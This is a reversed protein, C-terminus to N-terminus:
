TRKIVQRRHRCVRSTVGADRARRQLLPHSSGSARIMGRRRQLQPPFATSTCTPNLRLGRPQLLFGEQIRLLIVFPPNWASYFLYSAILLNVKKAKWPLPLSHLALVCAFFAIFTLSNFVM